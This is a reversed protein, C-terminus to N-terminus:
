LTVARAVFQGSKVDLVGRPTLRLGPLFDCCLFLLAYLIDGFPFGATRLRQELEAQAEVTTAFLADMMMGAIPLPVSWGDGMAIAGDSAAVVEAARQMADHDRGLVLLHMATNYSSALGDLRPAFNRIWARVAWRGERDVLIGLIDGEAPAIQTGVARTIANSVFEIVPLPERVDLPLRDARFTRRLGFSDWALRPLEVTSKGDLAVDRGEMMVRVPRFQRLDQLMVIDARRGPAIGGLELDLGYYTAPNITAMQIAKVPEVGAAVCQRLAEDIFGGQAIFRPAPGDVTLMMRRTDIGDETIARALEPIDPRLSSHRLITWLGLRLRDLVEQRTIAEHCADVGGAAVGNLKEYSAGATHGDVRKGLSHVHAIADLVCRDRKWVMPWRTLEASGAVDPRSLLPALKEMGFEQAEGDFESQSMLRILWRYRIPLRAAADLMRAFGEPEAQLYFFLDDNFITTTGGPLIGEIMSAPNYLLWPHAHPEIWAPALYLGKADLVEDAAPESPGVYTIRGAAIVVNAPLLEGSYVNVVTGGRILRHNV